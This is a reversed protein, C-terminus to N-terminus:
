MKFRIGVKIESGRSKATMDGVPNKILNGLGLDFAYEIYPVVIPLDFEIGGGFDLGFDFSSVTSDMNVSTTGDDEKASLLFALNIGALAYPKVLPLGPWKLKAHVPVALYDLNQKATGGPIVADGSFTMQAGRQSYFIGPEISLLNLLSIDLVVGGVFGTKTDTSTDVAGTMGAESLSQHISEHYMSLGGAVGWQMHVQAFTSSGMFVLLGAALCVFRKTM